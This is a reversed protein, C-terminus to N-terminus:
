HFFNVFDLCFRFLIILIQLRRLLQIFLFEILLCLSENSHLLLNFLHVYFVLTLLSLNVGEFVKIVGQRRLNLPKFLLEELSLGLLDDVALRDDAFSGRPLKM